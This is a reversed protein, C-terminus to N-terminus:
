GPPCHTGCIRGSSAVRPMQEMAATATRTTCSTAMFCTVKQGKGEVFLSFDLQVTTGDKLAYTYLKNEAQVPAVGTDKQSLIGGRWKEGNRM